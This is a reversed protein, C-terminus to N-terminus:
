LNSFKGLVCSGGRSGFHSRIRMFKAHIECSNRMFKAHIMRRKCSSLKVKNCCLRPGAFFDGQLQAGIGRRRHLPRLGDHDNPPSGGTTGRSIVHIKPSCTSPLYLVGRRQTTDLYYDHHGRRASVLRPFPAAAPASFLAPVFSSISSITETESM